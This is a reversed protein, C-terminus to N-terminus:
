SYSCIGMYTFITGPSRDKTIHSSYKFVNREVDKGGERERERDSSSARCPCLISANLLLYNEGNSILTLPLM